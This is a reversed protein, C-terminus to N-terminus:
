AHCLNYVLLEMLTKDPMLNSKLEVDAQYLLQLGKELAELTFNAAQRQYKSALYPPLRLFSALSRGSGPKFEKTFVLRELHNTLWFIMGGPKEGSLLLENLALLSRSCNREGIYDILQFVNHSRSLGAAAQVDKATITERDGAYIILKDIESALDGLDTGAADVLAIVADRDIRRGRERVRDSVWAPIRSEFLREFQVTIALEELEKYFKAPKSIKPSILILCTSEPLKPLFALLMDKSFPSLKHLDYVVVLRREANVPVTSAKDIIEDASTESGYLLDLNFSRLESPVLISVLSKLTEQKLFDEDGAFYYLRRLPASPDRSLAKLTNQFARYDVKQAVKNKRYPHYSGGCLPMPMRACAKRAERKLNPDFLNGTL